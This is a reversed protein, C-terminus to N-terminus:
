VVRGRFVPEIFFLEIGRKAGIQKRQVAHALLKPIHPIILSHCENFRYRFTKLTLGEVKEKVCVWRPYGGTKESSM